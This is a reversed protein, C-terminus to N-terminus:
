SCKRLLGRVEPVTRTGLLSLQEIVAVTVPAPNSSSDFPSVNLLGDRAAIRAIERAVPLLPALFPQLNQFIPASPGQEILESRLIKQAFALFYGGVHLAEADCKPVAEVIVAAVVYANVLQKLSGLSLASLESAQADNPM